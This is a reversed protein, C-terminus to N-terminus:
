QDQQRSSVNITVDRIADSLVDAAESALISARPESLAIAREIVVTAVPAQVFTLDPIGLTLNSAFSGQECDCILRVCSYIEQLSDQEVVSAGTLPSFEYPYAFHPVVPATFSM